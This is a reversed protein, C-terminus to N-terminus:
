LLHDWSFDVKHWALPTVTLRCATVSLFAAKQGVAWVVDPRTRRLFGVMRKTYRALDAPGPREGFERPDAVPVGLAELRPARPGSPILLAELDIGPPRHEIFTASALEAGGTTGRTVCLVKMWRPPRRGGRAAEQTRRPDSEPWSAGSPQLLGELLHRVAELRLDAAPRHRADDGASARLSGLRRPPRLHGGGRLGRAGGRAGGRARLHLV